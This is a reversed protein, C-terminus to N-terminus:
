ICQRIYERIEKRGMRLHNEVTRPSLNLEVSIDSVSKEEFRSMAYITRRQSPLASLKFVECAALDDAMIRSETENSCQESHDYIYSSVEQKKYYRRLYDYVLNRAITFIFSKVTDPRLIQDYDMLRVFVDQALDEAEEKNEIKYYIYLYVSRHFDAYSEEILRTSKPTIDRM